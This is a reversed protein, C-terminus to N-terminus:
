NQRTAARRRGPSHEYVAGLCPERFVGFSIRCHIIKKIEYLNKRPKKPRAKLKGRRSKKASEAGKRSIIEPLSM